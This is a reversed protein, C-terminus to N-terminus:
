LSGLVPMGLGERLDDETRVRRDVIELLLALGVGLLSGVIVSLVLNLVLKPRSPEIPETAKSLIAINTQNFQSEMNIQNFRQLAADFTRQAGEVERSLVSIGDRQRRLELVRAKQDGLSKELAAERAMVRRYEPHNTGLQRSRVDHAEAQTVLLQGTLDALRKTETDLREDTAVIENEQQYATLKEQAAEVRSRLLKLQEDFWSSSRRAPEISLELNTDIYAQAFGNAIAAAFQADRSTYHIQLMRSERGPEVDLKKLLLEALWDKISGQGGTAETFQERATPSEALKLNEVVRLAVGHSSLIGVQTAMYSPALQIPAGLQGFPDSGKYDVVVATTATYEKPLLLSLAATAVVTLFLTLLFLKLRARLVQLFQLLNM